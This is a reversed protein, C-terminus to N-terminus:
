FLHAIILKVDQSISILLSSLKASTCIIMFVQKRPLPKESISMLLLVLIYWCWTSVLTQTNDVSPSLPFVTSVWAWLFVITLPFLDTWQAQQMTHYRALCFMESPVQHHYLLQGNDNQHGCTKPTSAGLAHKKTEQHCSRTISSVSVLPLSEQWVGPYWSRKWKLSPSLSLPDGVNRKRHPKMKPCDLPNFILKLQASPPKEQKICIVNYLISKFNYIIIEFM